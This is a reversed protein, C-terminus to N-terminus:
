TVMSQEVRPKGINTPSYVMEQAQKRKGFVLERASRFLCQM